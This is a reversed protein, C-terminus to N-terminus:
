CCDVTSKVGKKKWKILFIIKANFAGAFIM